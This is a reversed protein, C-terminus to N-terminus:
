QARVLSSCFLDDPRGFAGAACFVPGDYGEQKICSDTYRLAGIEVQVVGVGLPARVPYNDTVAFAATVAFDWQVAFGTFCNM